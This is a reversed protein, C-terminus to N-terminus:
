FYEVFFFGILSVTNSAFLKRALLAQLFCDISVTCENEQM